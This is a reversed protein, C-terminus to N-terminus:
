KVTVLRELERFKKNSIGQVMMLHEARRFPGYKERHAVIRAAIVEGIGPLKELEEPAATNINVLAGRRDTANAFPTTQLAPPPQRTVCGDAIAILCLVSSLLTLRALQFHQKM